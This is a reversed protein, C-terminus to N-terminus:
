GRRYGKDRNVRYALKGLIFVSYFRTDGPFKRKAEFKSAEKRSNELKRIRSAVIWRNFDNEKKSFFRIRKFGKEKKKNDSLLIKESCVNSRVKYLKSTFTEIYIDTLKKKPVFNQFIFLISPFPFITESARFSTLFNLKSNYISYHIQIIILYNISYVSTYLTQSILKKPISSITEQWSIVRLLSYIFSLIFISTNFSRHDTENHIMLNTSLAFIDTM